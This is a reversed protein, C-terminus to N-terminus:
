QPNTSKNLRSYIKSYNIVPTQNGGDPSHQGHIVHGTAAAIDFVYEKAQGEPTGNSILKAVLQPQSAAECAQIISTVRARETAIAETAAQLQKAESLDEIAKTLEPSAQVAEMTLPETLKAKLATVEAEAKIARSELEKAQAYAARTETQMQFVAEDVCAVAQLKEDKHTAFGWVVAQDANHYVDGQALLDRVEKETKGTRSTYIEILGSEIEDVRDAHTRLEEATYWGQLGTSPKHTMVKSGIRLTRTDGALMIISAISAALGSVVVHVTAKHNLLYDHIRMGSYVDGGPSNIELTIEDLDGLADVADIFARASKEGFFDVVWDPSWDSAIIKDIVVKASRDGTKQAKFWNM